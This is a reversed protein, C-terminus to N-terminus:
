EEVLPEISQYAQFMLEYLTDVAKTQEEVSLGAKFSTVDSCCDSLVNFVVCTFTQEKFKYTVTLEGHDSLFDDSGDSEQGIYPMHAGKGCDLEAGLIKINRTAFFQDTGYARPTTYYKGILAQLNIHPHPSRVKGKVTKPDYRARNMDENIKNKKVFFSKVWNYVRRFTTDEEPSLDEQLPWVKEHESTIGQLHEGVESLLPVNFDGAIILETYREKLLDSVQIVLDYLGSEHISIVDDAKGVSKLHVVLHCVDNIFCVTFKDEHEDLKNQLEYNGNLITRLQAWEMQRFEVDPTCVVTMASNNKQRETDLFYVNLGQLMGSDSMSKLQDSELLISYFNKKGIMKQLRQQLFRRKHTRLYNVRSGSFQPNADIGFGGCEGAFGLNGIFEKMWRDFSKAKKFNKIYQLQTVFEEVTMGSEYISHPSADLLNTDIYSNVFAILADILEESFVAQYQGRKLSRLVKTLEVGGESSIDTFDDKTFTSPNEIKIQQALNTM